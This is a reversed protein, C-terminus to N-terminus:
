PRGEQTKLSNCKDRVNSTESMKRNKQFSDSFFPFAVLENSAPWTM